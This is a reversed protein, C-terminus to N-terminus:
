ILKKQQFVIKLRKKINSILDDENKYFIINPFLGVFFKSITNKSSEHCIIVIRKKLAFAYGLEFGVGHSYNSIDAIILDIDNIMNVSKKALFDHFVSLETPQEINYGYIRLWDALKNIIQINSHGNTMSHAIYIIM